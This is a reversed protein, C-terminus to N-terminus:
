SGHLEDSPLPLHMTPLAAVVGEGRGVGGCHPWCSSGTPGGPGPGRQPQTGEWPWTGGATAPLASHPQPHTGCLCLSENDGCSM